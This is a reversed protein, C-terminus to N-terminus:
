KGLNWHGRFADQNGLMGLPPGVSSVHGIITTPSIRSVHEFPVQVKAVEQEAITVDLRHLGQGCGRGLVQPATFIITWNGGIRSQEAYVVPLCQYVLRLGLVTM